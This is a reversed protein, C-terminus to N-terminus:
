KQPLAYINSCLNFYRKAGPEDQLELKANNKNVKNYNNIISFVKLM